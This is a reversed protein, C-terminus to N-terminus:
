PNRLEDPLTPYPSYGPGTTCPTAGLPCCPKGPHSLVFLGHFQAETKFNVVLRGEEGIRMSTPYLSGVHPYHVLPSIKTVLSEKRAPSRGFKFEIRRMKLCELWLSYDSSNQTILSASTNHKNQKRGLFPTLFPPLISDPLMLSTLMFYVSQNCYVLIAGGFLMLRCLHHQLNLSVTFSDLKSSKSM